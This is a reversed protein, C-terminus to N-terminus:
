DHDTICEMISPRCCQILSRRLERAVEFYTKTALMYALLCNRKGHLYCFYHFMLLFAYHKRAVVTDVVMQCVRSTM